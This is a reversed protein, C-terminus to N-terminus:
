KSKKLLKIKLSMSLVIVSSVVSLVFILPWLNYGPVEKLTTEPSSEIFKGIYVENDLKGAIYINNLTDVVIGNCSDEWTGGFVYDWKKNGSSDFKEIELNDDISKKALYINNSSDLTIGNILSPILDPATINNCIKSWQLDGFKNYKLLCIQWGLTENDVLYTGEGVLYIDDSSDITIGKGWKRGVTNWSRNWQWVGSNDFKVLCLDYGKTGGLYINNSSDVVIGVAGDYFGGGWTRNWELGGSTNYKLLCMASGEAIWSETYGGLFINNNNDIAIGYCYDEGSGGWVNYWQLGGTNNYKLLFIDMEGLFGNQTYGAIYIDDTSSILIAQGIDIDAGGWTRDWQLQGSSNYKVLCVDRSKGINGSSFGSIYSNNLSDLAIANGEAEWGFFEFWTRNWELNIPDSASTLLKDSVTISVDKKNYNMCYLISFANISLITIFLILLIRKKNKM